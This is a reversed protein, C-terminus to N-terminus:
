FTFRSRSSCDTVFASACSALACAENFAVWAWCALAFWGAELTATGSTVIAADAYAMLDYTGNEVLATGGGAVNFRGHGEILIDIPANAVQRVM